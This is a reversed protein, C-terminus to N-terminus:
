PHFEGIGNANVRERLAFRRLGHRTNAPAFLPENRGQRNRKEPRGPCRRGSGAVAAV